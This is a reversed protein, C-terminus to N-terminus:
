YYAPTIIHKFTHLIFLRGFTLVSEWPLQCVCACFRFSVRLSNLGSRLRFTTLEYPIYWNLVKHIYLFEALWGFCYYVLDLEGSQLDTQWSVLRSNGHRPPERRERRYGRTSLSHSKMYMHTFKLYFCHNEDNETFYPKEANGPPITQGNQQTGDM